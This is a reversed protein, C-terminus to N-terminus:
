AGHQSVVGEVEPRLAARTQVTNRRDPALFSKLKHEIVRPNEGQQISLLGETILEKQLIEAETLLRLRGAVPAFFLNALISGYFTTILAVALSPGIADPDDIRGLMIILGILTGIMGYAPSVNAMFSFMAQGQRHRDELFAMEIELINKVLEPDTGDVVLQVGEKLFPDTINATEDEMALLGERRAIEALRVIGRITEEPQMDAPRMAVRLLQPIRALGRVGYRVVVSALTGGVVIIVSSLDAFSLVDGGSAYIGTVILITGALFGYIISRDM